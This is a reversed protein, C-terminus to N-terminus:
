SLSSEVNQYALVYAIVRFRKMYGSMFRGMVPPELTERASPSLALNNLFIGGIWGVTAILHLWDVITAVMLGGTNGM